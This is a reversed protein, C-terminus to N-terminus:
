FRTIKLKGRKPDIKIEAESFNEVESIEAGKAEWESYFIKFFTDENCLIYRDTGYMSSTKLSDWKGDDMSSFFSVSIYEEVKSKPIKVRYCKQFDPKTASMYLFTNNVMM